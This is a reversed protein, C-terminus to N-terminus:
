VNNAVFRESRGITLRSFAPRMPTAKPWILIEIKLGAAAQAHMSGRAEAPGPARQEIAPADM